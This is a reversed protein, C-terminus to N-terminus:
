SPACKLHTASRSTPTSADATVKRRAYEVVAQVIAASKASETEFWIQASELAVTAKLLAASVTRLTNSAYAGRGAGEFDDADIGFAKLVRADVAPAPATGNSAEAAGGGVGEDDLAEDGSVAAFASEVVAEVVVKTDSDVEEEADILARRPSRGIRRVSAPLPAFSSALALLLALRAVM